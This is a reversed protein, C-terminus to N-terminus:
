DITPGSSMLHSPREIDPMLAMSRYVNTDDQLLIGISLLIIRSSVGVQKPPNKASYLSPVYPITQAGM